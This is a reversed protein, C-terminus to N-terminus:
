KQKQKTIVCSWFIYSRHHYERNEMRLVRNNKSNTIEIANVDQKLSDLQKNCTKLNDYYVPISVDPAKGLNGISVITVVLAVKIM